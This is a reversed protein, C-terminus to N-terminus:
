KITINLINEKDKNYQYDISSSLSKVINQSITDLEDFINIKRGHYTFRIKVIAEEDCEIEINAPFSESDLKTIGFTFLEESCLVMSNNTRGKIMQQYGFMELKSRLSIFDFDPSDIDLSFIKLHRIFAKTKEKKPNNFIEESTGEEYIGGEDMYFVRNAVKQAFKLEHTVIMMTMGTKALDEIVRLVENIMAPDLASTPEDLLMVEPDMTLTRVIAVRQKQGGSLESPYNFAKECLGVRKLLNMGKEYAIQKPVNKIVVPAIMLNEIVTLHNFLNFSQFVMGMNARLAYIDKSKSNVLKGFAYVNGSTPEELRNLMRIFTSKGTGSPGIISIIDGKNITTNVDKLPIANSYEKRLHEVRIVEETKNEKSNDIMDVYKNLDIDKNIGELMNMKRKSPDTKIEILSLASTLLWALVFYIIATAIIPMFADYTRSRIIDSVKTLDQVAVYGVVSTMKVMSIFQGKYVPLAHRIAQPVIIHIYTKTKNFGLASAAEWQGPEVANIGSRLIESVYVGFDLSFGIIGVAIGSISSKSFVIYYLVLLMVVIPVGQMIRVFTKTITDILKINSRRLLCLVIGFLTGFLATFLAIEITVKLGDLLLKWRDERIFNKEFSNILKELIDTNNFEKDTTKRVVCYIAEKDYAPTFLVNEAREDTYHLFATLDYKATYMGALISSFEMVKCDIGYGYEKAFNYLLEAEYGSYGDKYIHIMPLSLPEIVLSIIKNEGNLDSFKYREQDEENVNCWYNWMEELEGSDSLKNIYESLQAQLVKGFETKSIGFCNEAYAITKQQITLNDYNEMAYSLQSQPLLTAEVKGESVALLCDVFSSYHDYESQNLYTYTLEEEFSGTYVAIKKGTLEDVDFYTPIDKLLDKRCIAVQTVEAYGISYDITEAREETYVLTGGLDIKGMTLGALMPSTELISVEIDYGREKAFGYLIEAEIGGYVDKVQFFFPRDLVAAAFRLTGNEGTLETYDYYNEYEPDSWKKTLTKLEGKKDLENIYENIENLFKNSESNRAAGFYVKTSSIAPYVATLTPHDDKCTEYQSEPMITFDAKNTEISVICTSYDQNYSIESDPFEETALKEQISGVVTVIPHGNLDKSTSIRNENSEQNIEESDSNVCGSLCLLVM